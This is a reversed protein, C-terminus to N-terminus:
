AGSRALDPPPTDAGSERRWLLVSVVLVWALAVLAAVFGAPTFLAIFVLISVWGLWVPIVRTRLASLGTALILTGLGVSIPWFFDEWFANLAQLAVPDIDNAADALAIRISADVAIGASAVVGGAFATVSLISSGNERRRLASRLSAAFFLLAVCGLAELLSGLMTVTDHDTYYDVVERPSADVGPTDGVMFIGVAILVVFLVGTLPTLRRLNSAM